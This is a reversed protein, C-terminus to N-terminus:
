LDASDKLLQIALLEMPSMEHLDHAVLELKRELEDIVSQIFDVNFYAASNMHMRVLPESGQPQLRRRMMELLSLEPTDNM